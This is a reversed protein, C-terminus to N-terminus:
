HIKIMSKIGKKLGAFHKQKLFKPTMINEVVDRIKREGFILKMESGPIIKLEKKNLSVLVLIGHKTSKPSMRWHEFLGYIYKKYGSAPAFNKTSVVIIKVDYAAENKELIKTLYNEQKGTLVDEYDNVPGMYDPFSGAYISISFLLTIALTITKNKM